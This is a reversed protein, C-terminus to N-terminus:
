SVSKIAKKRYQSPTIGKKGIFVRNFYSLTEFGCKFAIESIPQDSELLLYSAENIRIENLYDSFTKGTSKKFFKCFNSETLGIFGSIQNLSIKQAYNTQIYLCVKNIRFENEKSIINQLTNTSLPVFNTRSLENLISLLELIKQMGELELLTNIQLKINHHIGKFHIGRQSILLMEKLPLSENFNLFPAIFAKSFQIVITEFPTESNSSGIWTHPLNSGLLVLDGDDFPEYNNGVLRSGNGKIIYTLEFEPHYHLKFEFSPTKFKYAYFSSKGKQLEIEELIAKM